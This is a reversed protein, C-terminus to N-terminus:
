RVSQTKPFMIEVINQLAEHDSDIVALNEYGCLVGYNGDEKSLWESMEDFSYPKKTWDLEFPKKTGKKIKCFKLNQLQPPIM